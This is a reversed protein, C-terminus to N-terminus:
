SKDLFLDYKKPDFESVINIIDDYPVVKNLILYVIEEYKAWDEVDSDIKQELREEPTLAIFENNYFFTADYYEEEYFISLLVIVGDEHKGLYELIDIKM